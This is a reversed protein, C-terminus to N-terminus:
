LTSLNDPRHLATNDIMLHRHYNGKLYVSNFVPLRQVRSGADTISNVDSSLKAYWATFLVNLLVLDLTSQRTLCFGAAQHKKTNRTCRKM